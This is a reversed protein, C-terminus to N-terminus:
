ELRINAQKVVKAWSDMERRMFAAFDAPGMYDPEVGDVLFRKKTDERALIAQLERNLRSIADGPTGAPALLGFWVSSEYGPLGSEAITPVNPLMSTRSAGGTGLIKLKGSKVHPMFQVLSAILSHSHGGLLDVVSPGGGKYHVILVDIGSMIKFLETAMHPTGAIGSTGFILQGPNRRALGILDGATKVPLSPHVVLATPGTVLRAVPAFSRVSDYRLTHLSPHITFSGAVLLVTYGDAPSKAALETGIMGGAGGRNDVIVQQGLRESLSTAIMRGFVDSGGGPPFPVIIRVPKTPYAEAAHAEPLPLAAAALFAWCALWLISSPSFLRTPMAFEETM